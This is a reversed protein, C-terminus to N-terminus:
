SQAPVAAKGNLREKLEKGPRFSAKRSAPIEIAAGTSPNRGMRAKSEKSAFIGLGRLDVKDGSVLANTIRDLTAEITKEVESKNQGTASTVSEILQLKTM